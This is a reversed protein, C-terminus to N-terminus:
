LAAAPKNDPTFQRGAPASKKIFNMANNSFRACLARCRNELLTM